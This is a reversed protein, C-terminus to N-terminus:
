SKTPHVFLSKLTKLIIACDLVFSRNKLYYLDYQLKEYADEVSSGYPYRIQAWGTIGPAILHRMQYFPIEKELLATFEPREPRPGVFGIEGKIVNLLQPLEDLHTRVLVRGVPTLRPDNIGSMKWKPGDKEADHRMTRFKYLTFHKGRKGVRTQRYIVPGKSSLAIAAAICLFLPLLLVSLILAFLLSGARKLRDYFKKAASNHEIFWLEDIADLPVKKLVEEYLSPIDQIAIDHALLQYLFKTLKKRQKSSIPVVILKCHHRAIAARISAESITAEDRLHAKLRYGLQPNRVIADALEEAAKGEGILLLPTVAKATEATRNFGRRWLFAVVAFIASFLFLNRKPAIGSIPFFYFLAIALLFNVILASLFTKAFRFDNRLNSLEYLGAIYFTLVWIVLMISFPIIHARLLPAPVFGQYRLFLTALLSCYFIAVDGILLFIIKLTNAPKAM